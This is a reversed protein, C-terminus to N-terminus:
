TTATWFRVLFLSILFVLGLLFVFSSYKELFVDLRSPLPQRLRIAYLPIPLILALLLVVSWASERGVLQVIPLLLGCGIVYLAFETLEFNDRMICRIGAAKLLLGTSLKSDARNTNEWHDAM